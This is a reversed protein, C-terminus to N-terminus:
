EMKEGKLEGAQLLDIGLDMGMGTFGVSCQSSMGLRIDLSMLIGILGKQDM